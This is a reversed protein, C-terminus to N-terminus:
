DVRVGSDHLPPPNPSKSRGRTRPDHKKKGGATRLHRTDNLKVAKFGNEAERVLVNVGANSHRFREMRTFDGDLLGALIIKLLRGHSVVIVSGEKHEALVGDLAGRARTFATTASEGGPPAFDPNGEAWQRFLQDMIAKSKPNLPKGSIIGWNFEVMDPLHRVQLGLAEALIHATEDARKLPSAYIATVPNGQLLGRGTKTDAVLRRALARAQERGRDSLPGDLVSGQVIGKANHESEAHRVLLLRTM